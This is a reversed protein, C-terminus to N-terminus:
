LLLCLDLDCVTVFTLTTVVIDEMYRYHHLIFAHNCHVALLFGYIALGITVHGIVDRSGYARFILIRVGFYKLNLTKM